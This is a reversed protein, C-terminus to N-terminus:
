GRPARTVACTAWRGLTTLPLISGHPDFVNLRISKVANLGRVFIGMDFLLLREGTDPIATLSHDASSTWTM